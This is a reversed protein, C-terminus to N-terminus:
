VERGHFLGHCPRCLVILDSAEEDLDGLHEYTRHHVDLVGSGNCIQCRYGARQLAERRQRSWHETALYDVYPISRFYRRAAAVFLAELKGIVRLRLDQGDASLAFQPHHTEFDRIMALLQGMTEPVSVFSGVLDDKLTM